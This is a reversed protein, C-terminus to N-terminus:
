CADGSVRINGEPTTNAELHPLKGGQRQAVSHM